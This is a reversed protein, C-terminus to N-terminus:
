LHEFASAYAGAAPELSRLLVMGGPNVNAELM